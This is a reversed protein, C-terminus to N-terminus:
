LYTFEILDYRRFHSLSVDLENYIKKGAPVIFVGKELNKLKRINSLALKDDDIHEIM